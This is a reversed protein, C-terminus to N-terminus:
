KLFGCNGGNIAGVLGQRRAEKGGQEKTYLLNTLEDTKQQLRKSLTKILYGQFGIAVDPADSQLQRMRDRDLATVECSTTAIVSASRKSCLFFGMEGVVSGSGIKRYRIWSSDERELLISFEGSKVFYIAESNDGQRFLFDGEKITNCRLYPTIPKLRDNEMILSEQFTDFVSLSNVHEASTKLLHDECWELARDLDVFCEIFQTDDCCKQVNVTLDQLYSHLPSFVLHINPKKGTIHIFKKLIHLATSDVGHVNGFDLLIYHARRSEMNDILRSLLQYLKFVSGFFLYGQLRIIQIRDGHTDIYQLAAGSREVTSRHTRSTLHQKIVEVGSYNLVFAVLSALLGLVIATMLGTVVCTIFIFCVIPYDIRKLEHWSRYLGIHLFSFGVFLLYGGLLTTPIMSVLRGGSFFVCCCIIAPMIGAIRSKTGHLYNSASPSLMQYGVLGGLFSAVTNGWGAAAIERDLDADKTTVLEFNSVNFVITTFTIFVLALITGFQAAVLDWRATKISLVTDSLMLSNSAITILRWPLADKPWYLGNIGWLFIASIIFAATLPVASNMRLANRQDLYFAFFGVMLGILINIVQVITVQGNIIDLCSVIGEFIEFSNCLILWGTGALIGRMVPQPIWRIWKAVKMRGLLLLAIGVFLTSTLFFALLTPRVAALDGEGYLSAYIATAGISVVISSTSQPGSVTCKFSSLCNTVIGTITAGVIALGIGMPMLAVLDGKFILAAMAVSVTLTVMGAMCGAWVERLMGPWFTGIARRPIGNLNM